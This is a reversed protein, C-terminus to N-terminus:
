GAHQRYAILSECIPVGPAGTVSAILAIWGDHIWFGKSPFPMALRSIATRFAMTAGTVFHQKTFCRFQDGQLFLKKLEGQFGTAEWLSRHLPRLDEDVLEADSFVYGAEPNARFVTAIREIKCPKWVDDQDCLMIIDGSCLQIAKEFNRTSGLNIENRHIHVPFPARSAFEILTALTGDNSCDDCVVLEGPMLSQLLISELQAPLYKEGNYTCLAVSIKV